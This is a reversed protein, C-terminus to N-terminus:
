NKIVISQRASALEEPKRDALEYMKRFADVEPTQFTFLENAHRPAIVQFWLKAIVTYEGPEPLQIEYAVADSGGAFDPDDGIGFPRTAPGDAHEPNWGLPLLRNDKVYSAGRLLTFTPNGSADAMITEYVQVQDPQNVVSRHNNIPGGAQESALVQGNADTLEGNSNFQGSSFVTKGTKDSVTLQIWARRSPYATPLKHGSRNRVMVTVETKNQTISIPSLEISATGNKL